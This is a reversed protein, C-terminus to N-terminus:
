FFAYLRHSLPKSTSIALSTHIYLLLLSPLAFLSRLTTTFSASQYLYLRLPLLPVHVIKMTHLTDGAAFAVDRGLTSERLYHGSIMIFTTDSLGRGATAYLCAAIKTALHM